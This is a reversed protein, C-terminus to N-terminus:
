SVDNCFRRFECNVCRGAQQTPEPMRDQEVCARIATICERANAKLRETLAVRQAERTVMLYLFGFPAPLEIEEELLLGYLALQVKFHEGSTDSLKYDVPIVINKGDPRLILLDIVANVGLKTSCFPVNFQREGTAFGYTRLQRRVERQEEGAQAAVGAAMKATM